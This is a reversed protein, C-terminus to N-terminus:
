FLSLHLGTYDEFLPKLQDNYIDDYVQVTKPPQTTTIYFDKGDVVGLKERKKSVKVFEMKYLDKGELYTIRCYQAKKFMSFQFTMEGSRSYTFNKAGIMAQLKGYGGMQAIITNGIEKATENDYQAEM